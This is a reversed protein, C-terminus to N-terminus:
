EKHEFIFHDSVKSRKPMVMMDFIVMIFFALFLFIIIAFVKSVVLLGKYEQTLAGVPALSTYTEVEGMRLMLLMLLVLMLLVMMMSLMVLIMLMM